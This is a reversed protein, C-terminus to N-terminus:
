NDEKNEIMEMLTEESVDLLEAGISLVLCETAEDGENCDLFSKMVTVVDEPMIMTNM